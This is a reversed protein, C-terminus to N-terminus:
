RRSRALRHRRAPLDAEDDSDGGKTPWAARALPWESEGAEDEVEGGEGVAGDPEGELNRSEAESRAVLLCLVRIIVRRKERSNLDAFGSLRGPRSPVEESFLTLEQDRVVDAVDEDPIVREVLDILEEAMEDADLDAREILEEAEDAADQDAERIRGILAALVNDVHGSQTSSALPADPVDEPEGDSREIADLDIVTDDDSAVAEPETDTEPEPEFEVVPEPARPAEAVPEPEPEMLPVFEVAPTAPAWAEAEVVPEFEAVPEPEAVPHSVPEATPEMLYSPKRPTTPRYDTTSVVRQGRAAFRDITPGEDDDSGLDESMADTESPAAKSDGTATEEAAVAQPTVPESAYPQTTEPPSKEPKFAEPRSLEPEPASSQPQSAVPSSTEPKTSASTAITTVPTDQAGRKKSSVAFAIGGGVVVLVVVVLVIVM